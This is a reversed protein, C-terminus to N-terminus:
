VRCFSPQPPLLDSLCLSTGVQLSSSPYELWSGTFFTFTTDSEERGRPNYGMSNELCSFQLPHGNGEGPSRGSGPILGLDGVNCASAKGRLWWPLYESLFAAFCSLPSGSFGCSILRPQPHRGGWIRPCSFLFTDTPAAAQARLSRPWSELPCQCIPAPVCCLLVM